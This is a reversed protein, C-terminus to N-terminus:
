SLSGYRGIGHRRSGGPQPAERRTRSIRFAPRYLLMSEQERGTLYPFGKAAAASQFAYVRDGYVGAFGVFAEQLQEGRMSKVPYRWLSEVKGIVRM